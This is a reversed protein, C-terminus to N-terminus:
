LKKSSNKLNKFFIFADMSDRDSLITHFIKMSFLIKYRNPIVSSHRDSLLCRCELGPFIAPSDQGTGHRDM